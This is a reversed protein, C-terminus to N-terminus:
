SNGGEYKEKYIAKTKGSKTITTELEWIRRDHQDIRKRWEDHMEMSQDAIKSLKKIQRDNQDLRELHPKNTKEITKILRDNRNEALKQWAGFIVLVSAIYGSYQNLWEGIQDM